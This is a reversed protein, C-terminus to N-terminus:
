TLDDSLQFTFFSPAVRHTTDKKKKRRTVLTFGTDDCGVSHAASSEPPRARSPTMKPLYTPPVQSSSSTESSSPLAMQKSTTCMPLELLTTRVHNNTSLPPTIPNVDGLDSPKLQSEDLSDSASEDSDTEDSCDTDTEGSSDSEESSMEDTNTDRSTIAKGKGQHSTSADGNLQKADTNSAHSANGKVQHSPSADSNGQKDASPQCSHGFVHCKECRKPKWEYNVHVERITNSFELEFKHVFPLSADVEVCLRAYDLRKCGLTLEDCSLPQGVMSAVESLGEKTWLPFPLDYIRIWVPLKTIKNMDFVFGSHWKQLIIAKGGFMWPGNEIVKQLEDETKFRFMTFGNALSTVDELGFRKWIRHAISNMASYPLKFGPFFGVLCRHWVTSSKEWLGRTM